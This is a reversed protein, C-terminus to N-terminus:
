DDDSTNKIPKATVSVLIDLTVMVLVIIGFITMIAIGSMIAYIAVISHMIAMIMYLITKTKIEKTNM